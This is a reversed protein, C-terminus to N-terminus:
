EHMHPNIISTYTLVRLPDAYVECHAESASSCCTLFLPMVTLNHTHTRLLSPPDTTHFFGNPYPDTHIHTLHTHTHTQTAPPNVNVIAAM